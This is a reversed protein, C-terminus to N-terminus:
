EESLEKIIREREKDKEKWSLSEWWTKTEKKPNGKRSAYKNLLKATRQNM